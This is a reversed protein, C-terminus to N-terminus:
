GTMGEEVISEEVVETALESTALAQKNKWSGSMFWLVSIIAIIVNSIPFAWWIGNEHLTTHRSLIYAIPFQLVWQSIMTLMMAAFTNGSGQLAGSIAQQVGLFGFTLSMIRVYAVSGALAKADGTIFAASVPEAFIYLLVGVITLLIFASWASLKASEEARDIKGAGINQAVITSTAMALGIAPIIIFSLIRTGIGYSAVVSTGLGAVLFTMVTLGLARMSQDISAPLGLKFMDLILKNDPKFEHLKLHIGYKGSFLMALGIFTAIAQTVDTAIAAGAVGFAPIPGFGLIFLPDIILNLIVTALVIYIPTKVDGVARMLAQYVFFGFVFILGVFSIQMYSVAQPLVAPEAGMLAMIPTSFVYGLISLPLVVATMMLLTQASVHNAKQINKMGINQAVLISGAITLGGGVAMLLFIIPFSLSVAAVAEAGLKGVWFTDTLQYATQLINAFVVPVSLSVLAKFISGETFSKSNKM